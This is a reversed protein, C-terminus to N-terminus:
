WVVRFRRTAPSRDVLGSLGIARVKFVHSGLLLRRFRQPSKCSSWRRSDLQCAFGAPQDATFRFTVRRADTRGQPGAFIRTQPPFIRTPPMLAPPPAPTTGGQQDSGNGSLIGIAVRGRAGGGGGNFGDVAIRFTQGATAVFDVRSTRDGSNVDDDNAAVPVLSSVASGTYVALLTDFDSGATHVTVPGSEPATWRYWVSAGGPNGAHNPEGPEKTAEASSDGARSATSGILPIAASFADNAPGTQAQTLLLDVAGSAVDESGLYGDVAFRYTVGADADFSLRSTRLGSVDDNSAVETLSDVSGGMYAALVTDFDSGATEVVVPGDAPATWRYWISAGGPNGAHAPEGSEKTAKRNTDGERFVDSGSLQQASSFDDNSPAPETGLLHLRVTGVAPDGEGKFGDVAIRYTQGSSASFTVKSSLDVAPDADDNAAVAVLSSVASGTYVALLTDFDSGATEVVVPGDAPATWRYWISAGGPNGAHAPEGPEKTAKRNTDAERSVDSGPLVQGADFADNAPPPSDATLQLRATGTAGGFGDVAIKYTQGGVAEFDVRSSIDSGPAVDDNSGIETLSGVSSGAYVALVTDFDSGATEVIARGSGPATWSYWISAGGPNGAHAPEGPEKTAGDNSDGPRVVEPGSLPQATSFNDNAPATPADSTLFVSDAVNWHADLYSGVPPNTNFYDDDNCDLLAEESSSCVIEMTPFYPEDSYCETDYEDVCHWGGSSHPASLQVGGLNHVLEHAEVSNRGGLQGWCATDTRGISGETGPVGNNANSIGPQDDPIIQGIGCLQNADMFVMYKRDSRSYGAAHLENITNGFSDDASSSLTVNAIALDCDPSPLTVFRISRSGGTQAASDAFVSSAQAAWTAILSRLEAFRDPRDAPHAYIVQVRNGSSGDGICPVLATSGATAQGGTGFTAARLMAVSRPERVDVGAPAPDPGHTCVVPGKTDVRFGGECISGEPAPTLGRYVLGRVPGDVPKASATLREHASAPSVGLGVAATLVILAGIPIRLTKV